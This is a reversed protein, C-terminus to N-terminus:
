DAPAAAEKANEADAAQPAGANKNGTKEKLKKNIEEAVLRAPEAGCIKYVINM